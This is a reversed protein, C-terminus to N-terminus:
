DCCQGEQSDGCGCSSWTEPDPKREQLYAAMGDLVEPKLSYFNWRGQKRDNALGAERLVKLHFSLRSQAAGLADQLDCVCKEGSALMDIVRLRTEDSLAQFLRATQTPSLETTRMTEDYM